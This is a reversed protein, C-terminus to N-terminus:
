GRYGLREAGGHLPHWLDPARTVEQDGLKGHLISDADTRVGKMRCAAFRYRDGGLRGDDGGAAQRAQIRPVARRDVHAAVAVGEGEARSRLEDVHLEHLEERDAM